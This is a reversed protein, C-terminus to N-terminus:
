LEIKMGDYALEFREPLGQNDKTYDLNHGLHTFITRKPGIAQTAEIAEGISFHTPHPKQRLAGLILVELGALKEASKAPIASCDTLYAFPGIRYGYIEAEGHMVEIPIVTNGFLDFAASVEEATLNPKWGDRGDERFIYEFIRKIRGITDSNGFCPIARGGAALNFARLDDIGHIHDAHAHTYLVADVRELGNSLAQTRLDTTTDILINFGQSQILLSSRTRKNKESSSRCVECRCGIVPVGTSTGCGLIVLRM